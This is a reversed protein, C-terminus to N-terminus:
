HAMKELVKDFKIADDIYQRENLTTLHRSLLLTLDLNQSISLFFLYLQFIVGKGAVELSYKCKM